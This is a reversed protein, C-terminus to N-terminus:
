GLFCNKCAYLDSPLVFYLGIIPFALSKTYYFLFVYSMIFVTTNSLINELDSNNKKYLCIILVGLQVTPVVYVFM